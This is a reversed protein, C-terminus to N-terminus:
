RVQVETIGVGPGPVGPTKAKILVLYRHACQGKLGLYALRM